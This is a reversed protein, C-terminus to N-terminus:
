RPKLLASHRLQPPHLLKETLESIRHSIALILLFYTAWPLAAALKFLGLDEDYKFKNRSGKPTDVIANLYGSSKDFAPLKILNRVM